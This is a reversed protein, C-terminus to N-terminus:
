LLARAQNCYSVGEKVLVDLEKDWKKKVVRRMIFFLIGVGLFSLGVFASEPAAAICIAGIVSFVVGKKVSFFRELRLSRQIAKEEKIKYLDYQDELARLRQINKRTADRRLMINTYHEKTTVSYLTDNRTELHSESTNIEQSSIYEWGFSRRAEIVFNINSPSISLQKYEYVAM